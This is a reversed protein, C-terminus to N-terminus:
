FLDDQSKCTRHGVVTFVRAPKGFIKPSHENVSTEEFGLVGLMTCIVEPPFCWWTVASGAHMGHPTPMWHVLPTRSLEKEDFSKWLVSDIGADDPQDPHIETIVIKERTLRAANHLARFPDRLHLLIMGFVSIDVPNLANPLNYVDGYIVKGKVSFLNNAYWWGRKMRHIAVRMGERYKALDLKAFPVFDWSGEAALDFGIVDAGNRHMHRYLFGSATGFELARKGNFGVNGLYADEFGRLDWQGGVTGHGPLDMVHYFDCDSFEINQPAQAYLSAEASM